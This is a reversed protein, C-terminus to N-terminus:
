LITFCVYTTIKEADDNLMLVDEGYEEEGGAV